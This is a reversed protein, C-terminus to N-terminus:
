PRGLADGIGGRHVAASGIRGRAALGRAGADAASGLDGAPPDRVAGLRDFLRDGAACRSREQAGRRRHFIRGGARGAHARRRAHRHHRRHLGVPGIWAAVLTKPLVEAIFGSGVVGIGIRPLLRIFEVAGDRAGDNLLVRGRLAAIFGLAAVVLWLLINVALTM